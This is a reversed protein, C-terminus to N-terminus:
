KKLSREHTGMRYSYCQSYINWDASATFKGYTTTVQTVVIGNM